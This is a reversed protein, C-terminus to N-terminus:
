ARDALLKRVIERCGQEIKDFVSRYVAESMCNPDQLPLDEGFCYDMFLQIRDWNEYKLFRQVTCKHDNTMVLILDAKNVAEATMFTTFGGMEYGHEAAIRVMVGDRANEGWDLTGVSNVHIDSVNREALMKKLVYEAAASRCANGTCVFLVNM